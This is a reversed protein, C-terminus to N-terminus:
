RQRRAIRRGRRRSRPGLLALRRTFVLASLSDLGLRGGGERDAVAIRLGSQAADM